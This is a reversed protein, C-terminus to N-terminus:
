PINPKREKLALDIKEKQLHYIKSPLFLSYGLAICSFTIYIYEACMVIVKHWEVKSKELLISLFVFILVLLYCYFLSKNKTARVRINKEQHSIERWNTENDITFDSFLTMIAVLFGALISFVNIILDIAKENGHIYPQTFYSIVCSLVVIVFFTCVKQADIETKM